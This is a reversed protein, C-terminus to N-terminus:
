ILMDLYLCKGATQRQSFPVTTILLIKYVSPIYAHRVAVQQAKHFENAHINIVARFFSSDYTDKPIMDAYVEMDQWKGANVFVSVMCICVLTVTGVTKGM